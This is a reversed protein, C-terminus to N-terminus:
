TRYKECPKPSSSLALSLIYNLRETERRVIIAHMLLCCVLLLFEEATLTHVGGGDCYTSRESGIDGIM